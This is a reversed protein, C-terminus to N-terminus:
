AKWERAGRRGKGKGKWCGLWGTLADTFFKRSVEGGPATQGVLRFDYCHQANAITYGFIEGQSQEEGCMPPATFTRVRPAFPEGSLPSLTRWPDFEGGSWYVNSPRLVWGGFVANTRHVRPWEPLGTPFQRHCIDHQHQLSNYKSVIQNPGLNASQFYGWQTCYQWTWSIAAPDTFTKGLDCSGTVNKKGSCSTELYANVMPVFNEWQAWRDVVYQAGKKKAWGEAGAVTNTAPDTELYDCFNRLGRSGGEIGYSQWQYFITTLADAFEANDNTAAGLGLFREKLKAAARPSELTKDISKIAAHIDSSCNGFGYRVMGRPIPDFYFSMDVSAEVPASSAFSAYITDPYKDRMFAARMAPYSGGIFVWPTKDPTLTYNINPRSFQKAFSDVDALSQETTLFEFVESPTNLNIPEPTSNGYFRHEWVIGIGNYRDVIQKFFSTQNQLRNLAGPEADAEGVDYIFVPAGPKYATESVWFRNNFTGAYSYDGGKAFHDLPLEVYEPVINQVRQDTTSPPAPTSDVATLSSLQMEIPIDMPSGDPNLGMEAMQELKRMIGGNIAQTTQFLSLSLAAVLLSLRM